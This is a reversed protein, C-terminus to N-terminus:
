EPEHKQKPGADPYKRKFDDLNKKNRGGSFNGRHRNDIDAHCAICLCELNEDENYLKNGDKHHVHIYQRSLMTTAQFGCRECTYNKKERYQKSKKHWEWLYGKLDTEAENEKAKEAAERMTKEFDDSTQPVVQGYLMKRCYNCLPLDSVPVERRTSKDWVTVEGTNARRYEDKGFNQIADCNVIHMAPKKKEGQYVLYMSKKYLFIQQKAGTVPNIYYIGDKTIEVESNQLNSLDVDAIKLPVYPQAEGITYGLKVLAAKFKNFDYIPKNESM